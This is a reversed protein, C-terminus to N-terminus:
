YFKSLIKKREFVSFASIKLNDRIEPAFFDYFYKCGAVEDPLYGLINTIKIVVILICAQYILKGFLIQLIRLLQKFRNESKRLNREMQKLDAM